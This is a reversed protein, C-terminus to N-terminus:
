ACGTHELLNYCCVKPDGESIVDYQVKEIQRVFTQQPGLRAIKALRDADPKVIVHDIM